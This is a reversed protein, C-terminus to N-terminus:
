KGLLQRAIIVHHIENTGELIQNLKADRMFREVPYETSYGYSGHIQVAELAAEMAVDTVYCKCMSSLLTLRSWDGSDIEQTSTYLLTRAAEVKMAMDAIKFQIAQFDAIRRGFQKREQAYRISEDLSAQALGLSSAAVSPRNLDLIKMCAKFGAGEEGLLCDADVRMDEFFLQYTPAGHRGMKVEKRGVQFGPTSTDVLFVSIGDHGRGESTRAFLLVYHAQAAWTIWSKQGNIVYSAGDRKATTRISAVDSGAEPETIAVSAITRGKAAEPLYRRKQEETGFHLLPLILGISNNACLTSAALSAKGIEEKAICVSTLDGGPGGYEEPVWMQLLGLDGFVEILEEPFEDTEEMEAVLPRVKDDTLRRVMDRLMDKEEGLNM